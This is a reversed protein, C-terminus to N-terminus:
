SSHTMGSRRVLASARVAPRVAAMAPVAVGHAAVYGRFLSGPGGLLLRGGPGLGRLLRRRRARRHIRSEDFLELAVRLQSVLADEGVLLERCLLGLEEAALIARSGGTGPAARLWRVRV